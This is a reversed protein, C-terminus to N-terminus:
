QFSIIKKMIIKKGTNLPPFTLPTPNQLPDSYERRRLQVIAAFSPLMHSSQFERSQIASSGRKGGAASHGANKGAKSKLKVTKEGIACM